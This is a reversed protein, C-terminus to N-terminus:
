DEAMWYWDGLLHGKSGSNYCLDEIGSPSYIIAAEERSPFHFFIRQDDHCRRSASVIPYLGYDYSWMGIKSLDDRHQALAGELGPKALLFSARLPLKVLVLLSVWTLLGLIFRGPGTGRSGTPSSKASLTLSLRSLLLAAMGATWLALMWAIWALYYFPPFLSQYLVIGACGGVFVLLLRELSRQLHTAEVMFPM